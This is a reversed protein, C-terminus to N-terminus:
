LSQLIWEAIQSAGNPRHLIKSNEKMLERVRPDAIRDIAARILKKDRDKLVIMCGAEHAVLSRALQDDRGTELNPYCISPLSSAIVEHFSNYGGAQVSFDFDHFFMSNPYDRLIRVRKNEFNIRSGLISEGIVSYIEPHHNIAELTDRLDSSINNINGAGLQIYAVTAENPIGLRKRLWGRSLKEEEEVLLIPNCRVITARHNVQDESDEDISDGPRVIVDFHNISDSPIPKATKKFIGRRVWIKLLRERNKISNLVGRYPYSGDFIFAKPRHLLFVLSLMEEALNNWISPELSDYRYRGPIHYAVIGDDNLIHLTPMTTFFVVELTPDKEKLKRSIALLRTFHGFGVGNTPFLVICNRNGEALNNPDSIVKIENDIKSKRERVLRLWLKPLSFPLLLLRWPRRYAGVMHEGIIYSPSERVRTSERVDRDLTIQNKPPLTYTFNTGTRIKAINISDPHLSSIKEPIDNIASLERIRQYRNPTDLTLLSDYIQDISRERESEDNISLAVRFASVVEGRSIESKFFLKKHDTLTLGQAEAINYLKSAHVYKGIEIASRAALDLAEVDRYLMFCIKGQRLSRAFNKQNFSKRLRAMNKSKIWSYPRM